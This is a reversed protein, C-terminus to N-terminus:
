ATCPYVFTVRGVESISPKSRAVDTMEVRVPIEEDGAPEFFIM